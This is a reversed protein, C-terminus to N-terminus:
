RILRFYYRERQENNKFWGCPKIGVVSNGFIFNHLDVKAIIADNSFMNRELKADKIALKIENIRPNKNM